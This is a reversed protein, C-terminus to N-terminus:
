EQPKPLSYFYPSTAEHGVDIARLVIAGKPTDISAWVPFVSIESATFYMLVNKGSLISTDHPWTAHWAQTPVKVSSARGELSVRPSWPDQNKGQTKVLHSPAHNLSLQLLTAIFPMTDDKQLLDLAGTKSNVCFINVTSSSLYILFVKRPSTLKHILTKWPTDKALTREQQSLHAFETMEIWAHNAEASKVLLFFRQQGKSFVAYDGTQAQCINTKLSHSSQAQLHYPLLFIAVLFLRQFLPFLRTKEQKKM